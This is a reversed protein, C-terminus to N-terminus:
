FEGPSIFTSQISMNNAFRNVCKIRICYSARPSYKSSSKVDTEDSGLRFNRNRNTYEVNM